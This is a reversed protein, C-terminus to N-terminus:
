NQTKATSFETHLKKLREITEDSWGHKEKLELYAENSWGLVIGYIWADRHNSSWDRPHLAIATGISDQFTM